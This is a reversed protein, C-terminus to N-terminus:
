NVHCLRGFALELYFLLLWARCRHLRAFSKPQKTIGNAVAAAHVNMRAASYTPPHKPSQQKCQTTRNKAKESQSERQRLQRESRVGQAAYTMYARPQGDVTQRVHLRPSCIAKWRWRHEHFVREPAPPTSMRPKRSARRELPIM